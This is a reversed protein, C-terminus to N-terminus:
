GARVYAVLGGADGARRWAADAALRGAAAGDRGVVVMVDSPLDAPVAGGHLFDLFGRQASQTMADIPNSAWVRGGAAAVSEALPEGTLM